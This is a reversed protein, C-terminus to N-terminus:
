VKSEICSAKERLLACHGNFECGVEYLYSLNELSGIHLNPIHQMYERVQDVRNSPVFLCEIDTGLQQPGRLISEGPTGGSMNQPDKTSGWLIPFSSYLATLEHEFETMSLPPNDLLTSLEEIKERPWQLEAKIRESIRQKDEEEM